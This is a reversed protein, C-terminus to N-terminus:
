DAARGPMGIRGRVARVFIAVVCALGAFLYTDAFNFVELHITAHILDSYMFDVPAFPPVFLSLTNGLNGAVFFTTATRWLGPKAQWWLAFVLTTSAIGRLRNLGADSLSLSSHLAMGVGCSVLAATVCILAARRGSLGARRVALLALALGLYTFSPVLAKQLARAGLAGGAWSGIGGTNVVPVLKFLSDRGIGEGSPLFRWALLKTAGDFGVLWAIRPWAGPGSSGDRGNVPGNVPGHVPGNVPGHYGSV